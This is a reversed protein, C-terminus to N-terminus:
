AIFTHNHECTLKLRLKALTKWDPSLFLSYLHLVEISFPFITTSFNCPLLAQGPAAKNVAGVTKTCFNRM